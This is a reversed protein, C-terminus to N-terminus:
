LDDEKDPTEDDFGTEDPDEQETLDEYSDDKKLSESGCKPCRPKENPKPTFKHGCNQCELTETQM